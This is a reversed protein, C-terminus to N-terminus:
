DLERIDCDCNLKPNQVHDPWSVRYALQPELKLGTQNEYHESATCNDDAWLHMICEGTAKISENRAM